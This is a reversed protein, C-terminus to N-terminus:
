DGAAPGLYSPTIPATSLVLKQLVVNGDLRWFKIVHKGAGIGPFTMQLVRANDKVTEAWDHQAQTKTGNVGPTLRDALIRISADDISIGTRMVGRGSTDLTPVMYLQVTLDGPKGLVVDYELHIGDQEDTAARGQPFTTVAGSTRGLHPIARWTLGHGDVARSYRPAEIAVLSGDAEAHMSEQDFKIDGPLVTGASAIRTVLPMVQAKPEQWGTYGIHTQAMMGDWKRGHQAHYADTLTQDRRFAQEAGAAFVNARPDHQQALKRNWAVDYYLRYLNSLAAIPYEVLQFYADRQGAPLAAKVQQMSQELAQWEVVISGFEGGDLQDKSAEGLRFSDADVLEPKRRAALQSYRTLLQAIAAAQDPGFTSRAWDEPYREMADLTMAQPDWAQKMFFSLPFEMPKIDGVNVIWMTRVGSAYALDMQQWTKEIQNTNIWKYNRPGGVYDFHYYIGYGGKRPQDSSPLRRLQGWNDDSFLLTVDDPVKMGQDYYDQVEKYLAWVQPTQEAPKGTVSAIIDRQDAVIRQLANKGQDGAMPEDGDGRMGITVVSEYGQGHGKSMMREIGGRWFTRLNAANVSYDWRGGTVGDETHRHWEDQARLMAEHHSTGMVLGMADALVMNKPDDEDFAKPAWMAPWLYNGKLRLELEFVHEYMRANIGGFHQKAWGSFSPDEDNIFFGRYRVKPQDRRSGAALFVNSQHRVPVDAFWYWPSVGIKESIDYTGYVAGRRDSGVIVLARAINPYPHEVVIQRYAEWQGAIDGAQIKGQRVLSDIPESHGLTGIIVVEGAAASAQAFRQPLEGSVRQLDAAFSDAVRLVASDASPDVLIAAPHGQRVLGFKGAGDDPCIGVPVDYGYAHSCVATALLLVISGLRISSGAALSRLRGWQGIWRRSNRGVM